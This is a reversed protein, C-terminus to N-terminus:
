QRKRLALVKNRPGDGAQCDDEGNAESDAEKNSKVLQWAGILLFLVAYGLWMMRDQLMSSPWIFFAVTICFPALCLTGIAFRFRRQGKPKQSPLLSKVVRTLEADVDEAVRKPDESVSM